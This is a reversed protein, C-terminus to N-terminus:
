EATGIETNGSASTLPEGVENLSRLHFVSMFEEDKLLEVLMTPLEILSPEYTEPNERNLIALITLVSKTHNKLLVKIIDAMQGQKQRIEKIAEDKAIESIPDILDALVMMAEEGKFESLKM